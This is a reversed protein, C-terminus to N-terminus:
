VRPFRIIFTTGDPERSDVDISGHSQTVIGHVAALGIGAGRGQPAAVRFPEFIHPLDTASIARGTDTVRLEVRADPAHATSMMLTGGGPMATRANAGLTLLLLQVQARDAVINGVSQDFVTELRIDEGIARGLVPQIDRIVVNLNLREPKLIQKRSVALLQQTLTSARSVAAAIQELAGHNPDGLPLEDRALDNYGGISTLMNNFDHAVGGALRGIADLRQADRLRTELARHAEAVDHHRRGLLRYTVVAVVGLLLLMLLVVVGQARRLEPTVAVLPRIAVHILPFSFAAAIVMGGSRARQGLTFGVNRRDTPAQGIPTHRIRLAVLFLFPPLLWVADGVSGGQSLLVGSDACLDLADSMFIGGAAAAMAGYIARWRALGSRRAMAVYGAMLGCDLMMYMVYSPVASRYFSTELWAPVLVLYGFWGAAVASVSIAQSWRSPDGGAPSPGLHPRWGLPFFLLLYSLLYLTDVTLSQALGQPKVAPLAHAVAAAFWLVTSAAVTRWFRREEPDPLSRLGVFAAPVLLAVFAPTMYFDGLARLAARPVVGSVHAGVFIASAAAFLRIFPDQALSRMVPHRWDVRTM